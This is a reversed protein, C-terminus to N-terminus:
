DASPTQILRVPVAMPGVGGEGGASADCGAVNVLRTWMTKNSPDGVKEVFLEAYNIVTFTQRGPQPPTRYCDDWVAVTILSDSTDKADGGNWPIYTGVKGGWLDQHNIEVKGDAQHILNKMPDLVSGVNGGNDTDITQGCAIKETVGYDSCGNLCNLITCELAPGSAVNSLRILDWQSPTTSGGGKGNNGGGRNAPDWLILPQGYKGALFATNETGDAHFMCQDKAAANKPDDSLASNAIWLPKLCHTGTANRGAEATAFVQVDVNNFGIVKAFFTEIGNAGTRPVKVTVRQRTEDVVVDATTLVVPRGLISSQGAVAIAAGTALDTKNPADANNRFVYAGALAAADAAHQASTRATFLVGLDVAMAAFAFLVVIFLALMPLTLGRQAERATSRTQGITRIM